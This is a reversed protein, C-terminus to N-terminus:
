EREDHEQLLRTWLAQSRRPLVDAEATVQARVADDASQALLQQIDWADQPGGAYLKLLILDPIAAVPISAGEVTLVSARELAREQWTYRGVIVDILRHITPAKIRVVGRLPDTSDGPRIDVTIGAERLENWTSDALSEGAVALLDQVLTSRAIGHVGMASDGILASRIGRDQLYTVIRALLMM